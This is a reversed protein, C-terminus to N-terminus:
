PQVGFAKLDEVSKIDGGGPLPIHVAPNGRAQWSSNEPLSAIGDHGRYGDIVQEPLMILKTPVGDQVNDKPATGPEDSADADAQVQDLLM